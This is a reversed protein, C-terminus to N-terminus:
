KRRGGAYGAATFLLVGLALICLADATRAAALVAAGITTTAIATRLAMM